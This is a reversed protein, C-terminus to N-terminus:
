VVSKRDEMLNEHTFKIGVLNPITDSARRLFDAVPLGVGTMSPIQYYYFPTQPVTAAVEACFLVLDEVKSPKFFFPAMCGVAAAGIGAAHKALAQCDGLATHGVHVIVKLDSGAVECWRAAVAMREQLTMSAGEGTTGCVFAGSVGSAILSHAQAEILNLNLSGDKHFATYPASILGTLPSFLM